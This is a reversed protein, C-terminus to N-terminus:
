VEGVFATPDNARPILTSRAWAQRAGAQSSQVSLLAMQEQGSGPTTAQSIVGIARTAAAVIEVSDSGSYRLPSRSKCLGKRTAPSPV